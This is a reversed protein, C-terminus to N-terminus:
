VNYKKDITWRDLNANQKVSTVKMLDIGNNFAALYGAAEAQTRGLKPCARYMMFDLLCYFNNDPFDLTDYLSTIASSVDKYYLTYVVISQPTPCFGIKKNRLYYKVLNNANAGWYSIDWIDIHDVSIGQPNAISILDGFYDPLDYEAAGSSTTITTAEVNYESNVLNLHNRARAVAESLYRMADDRNVLTMEKNNLSSFFSDILKKASNEAFGGYPIANSNSSATTAASNYFIFWGYGTSHTTDEYKTYLDDPQIDITDLLTSTSFVASSTWYFKVKNYPIITVRTSEPHAFKSSTSATIVQSAPTTGSLKLIESTESGLEGFLVYQDTAFGDTNIVTFTTTGSVYNNSLFTSKAGNFLTNNSAKLVVM